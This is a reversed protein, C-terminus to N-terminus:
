KYETITTNAIWNNSVNSTQSPVIDIEAYKTPSVSVSTYNYKAGSSIGIIPLSSTFNGTINTLTIQNNLNSTSDVSASAIATSPSYGQYVTEGLQYSGIGNSLTFTVFNDTTIERYINTITHTILGANSINGYVFGKVPQQRFYHVLIM